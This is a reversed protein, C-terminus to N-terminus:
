EQSPVVQDGLPRAKNSFVKLPKLPKTNTSKSDQLTTGYPMVIGNHDQGQCLMPTTM